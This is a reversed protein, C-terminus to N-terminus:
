RREAAKADAKAQKEAERAEKKAVKKAARDDKMEAAKEKAGGYATGVIQRGGTLGFFILVLVTAILVNWATTVLQQTISYATITNPSAYGQLAAVNMAQTVGVGGPTVTVTGSISNSGMVRMITDFTVPIAYAALFIGIVFFKCTWSLFSTSTRSRPRAAFAAGPLSSGAM